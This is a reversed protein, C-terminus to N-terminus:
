NPLPTSFGAWILYLGIVLAPVVSIYTHGGAQIRDFLPTLVDPRCFLLLLGKAFMLWGIVTVVVPLAGGSWVNHTLITALGGAVGILGVAFMVPVDDIVSEIVASGRVLVSAAALVAFLGFFRALLVTLRSLRVEL